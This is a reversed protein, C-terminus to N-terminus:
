LQPLLGSIGTKSSAWSLQAPSPIPSKSSLRFHLAVAPTPNTVTISATGANAIDSAPITATLQSSSVFTTSLATGNWNVASGSVFGTGNLTLAFSSGGPAIATPVLPQNILPVPNTQALTMPSALLLFLLLWVLRISKM